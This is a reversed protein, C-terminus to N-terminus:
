IHGPSLPLSNASESPSLMKHLNSTESAAGDRDRLHGEGAWGAGRMGRGQEVLGALESSGAPSMKVVVTQQIKGAMKKAMQWWSLLTHSLTNRAYPPHQLPLCTCHASATAPYPPIFFATYKDCVGGERTDLDNRFQAFGPTPTHSRTVHSPATASLACHHRGSGLSPIARATLHTSSSSASFLIPGCHAKGYLRGFLSRPDEQQEWVM